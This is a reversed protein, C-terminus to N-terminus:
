EEERGPTNPFLARWLERGGARWQAGEGVALVGAYVTSTVLMKALLGAAPQIPLWRAPLEATLAAASCMALAPWVFVVRRSYDVFRRTFRFLVLMGVLVKLDVALAAGAIGWTRSLLVVAPVFVVLQVARGRAVLGPEGVAMLFRAAGWLLPDFLACVVMLQFSLQMPLWREGLLVRIFEPAALVFLPVFWFAVRVMVSLLRVYAHSLRRRDGRLRALAPLFVNGLPTAVLRRPYHAFEFARSYLGLATNGLVTGVWFDDFRMLVYDLNAALWSPRGYNWLWRAAAPQWGFRPRVAPARVWVYLTRAVLGSTPEAVLAWPGWGAWALVPACVTMATAACVDAGAITRFHMGRTLLGDQALAVTTLIDVGALALMVWGLGPMAPYFGAVSPILPIFLAVSGAALGVSLSFYTRYTAEDPAPHHVIALSLSLARLQALINVFVAALAVVGFQEPALLRALLVARVFGLSLTVASAAVSHLSSRAVQGAMGDHRTPMAVSRDGEDYSTEDQVGNGLGLPDRVIV